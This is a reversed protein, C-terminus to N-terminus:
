RSFSPIAKGSFDCSRENWCSTNPQDKVVDNFGIQERGNSHRARKDQSSDDNDKYLVFIFEIFFHLGFIHGERM